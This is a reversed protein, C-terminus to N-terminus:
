FLLHGTQLAVGIQDADLDDVGEVGGEALVVELAAGRAVLQQLRAGLHRRRVLRRARCHPLHVGHHGAGVGIFHPGQGTPKRRGASAARTQRSKAEESACFRGTACSSEHAWVGAERQLKMAGVPRPKALALIVGVEHADVAFDGAADTRGVVRCCCRQRRAHQRLSERPERRRRRGSACCCHARLGTRWLRGLRSGRRTHHNLSCLQLEFFVLRLWCLLM